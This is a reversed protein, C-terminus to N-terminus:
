AEVVKWVKMESPLCGHEVCLKEHLDELERAVRRVVPDNRDAEARVVGWDYWFIEGDFTIRVLNSM